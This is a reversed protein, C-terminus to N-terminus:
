RVVAHTQQNAPRTCSDKRLLGKPLSTPDQVWSKQIEALDVFPVSAFVIAQLPLISITVSEGVLIGRITSLDITPMYPHVFQIYAEFIARLFGTSPIDLASKTRLYNLDDSDLNPSLPTIFDPLGTRNPAQRLLLSRFPWAKRLPRLLM